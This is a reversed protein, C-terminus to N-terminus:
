ANEITCSGIILDSEILDPKMRSDNQLSLRPPAERM